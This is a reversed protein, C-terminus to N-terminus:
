RAIKWRKKAHMGSGINLWADRRKALREATAPDLQSSPPAPLKLHHFLFDAAIRYSKRRARLAILTERLSM